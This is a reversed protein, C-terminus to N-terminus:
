DALWPTLWTRPATGVVPTPLLRTGTHGASVLAPRRPPSQDM